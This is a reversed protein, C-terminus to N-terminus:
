ISFAGRVQAAQALLERRATEPSVSGGSISQSYQQARHTAIYELVEALCENFDVPAGTVTITSRTDTGNTLKISVTGSSLPAGANITYDAGSEGTFTPSWLCLPGSCTWYGAVRKTAPYSQENGIHSLIYRELDDATLVKSDPDRIAKALLDTATVTTTAM